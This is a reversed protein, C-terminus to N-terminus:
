AIWATPPGAFLRRVALQAALLGCLDVGVAGAGLCAGAAMSARGLLLHVGRHGARRFLCGAVAAALCAPGCPLGGADVPHLGAHNVPKGCGKRVAVADLWAVPFAHVAVPLGADLRHALGTARLFSPGRDVACVHDGPARRSGDADAWAHAFRGDALYFLIELRLTWEVGALAYPTGFFDGALLMQQLLTQWGVGQGHSRLILFEIGVAVLYLPYIRFARKLLFEPASERQLVQTIIYGSILFFVVVGVGGGEIFPWLLRAPWRLWATEAQAARAVPEHFKHGALVSAFAYIRLWDLFALREASARHPSASFTAIM